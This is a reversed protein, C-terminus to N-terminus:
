DFFVAGWELMCNDFMGADIDFLNADIDEDFEAKKLGFPSHTRTSTCTNNATEQLRPQSPPHQTLSMAVRMGTRARKSPKRPKRPKNIWRITAAVSGNISKKSKFVM